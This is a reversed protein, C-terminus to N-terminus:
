AVRLLEQNMQTILHKHTQLIYSWLHCYLISIFYPSVLYFYVLLCVLILSTLPRIAESGNTIWYRLYRGKHKLNSLLFVYFGGYAITTMCLIIDAIPPAQSVRRGYLLGSLYSIGQFGGWLLHLHLLFFRPLSVLSGIWSQYVTLPEYLAHTGITYETQCQQCHTKHRKIQTTEQWRLLCAKHVYKSSGSCRCPSVLSTPTTDPEFCFRCLM